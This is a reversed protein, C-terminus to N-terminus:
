VQLLSTFFFISIVLTIIILFSFLLLMYKLITKFRGQKYFNRMAKYLYFFITIVSIIDLWSFIDLGSFSYLAGFGDAILILIFIATYVYILFIVHNVYFFHKRRRIYLLQLILAVLPLSVFMMQPISHLFKELLREKFGEKDRSYEAELVIARRKLFGTFWRDKKEEPLNNQISDYGTVTSPLTDFDVVMQPGAKGPKASDATNAGEATKGSPKAQLLKEISDVEKQITKRQLSDPVANLKKKLSDILMVPKNALEAESVPLSGPKYIFTFFIIFFIASTFVYMRIPHLYSARKGRLYEQSLFGPKFLLYKLTNFFKGDFHIVDYVFHTVLGWFTEKPEINEQGCIHCYKGYVHANCNLCIKKTREKSHSM